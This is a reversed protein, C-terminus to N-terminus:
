GEQATRRLASKARTSIHSLKIHYMLACYYIATDEFSVYAIELPATENKYVVVSFRGSRFKDNGSDKFAQLLFTLAEGPLQRYWFFNLSSGSDEITSQCPLVVRQGVTASVESLFQRGAPTPLPSESPKCLSFLP